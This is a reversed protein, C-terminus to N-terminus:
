GSGSIAELITARLQEVAERQPSDPAEALFGNLQVLVERHRQQKLLINVLMLRADPMPEDHDVAGMLSAEADVMRDLKYLASGLYYFARASEPDMITAEEMLAATVEYLDQARAPTFSQEMQGALELNVGALGVLAETSDPYLERVREFSDKADDFRGADHQIAGLELFAEYFTPAMRIANELHRMASNTDGSALEDLGRDFEEVAGESIEFGEMDADKPISVGSVAYRGTRVEGEDTYNSSNLMITMSAYQSAGSSLAVRERVLGYGELNIYLHYVGSRPLNHFFFRGDSDTYVTAVLFRIPRELRIEIGGRGEVANEPLGVQGRLEIDSGQAFASSTCLCLLAGTVRIARLVFRMRVVIGPLRLSPFGSNTPRVRIGPAGHRLLPFRQAAVTGDLNAFPSCSSRPSVLHEALQFRPSAILEDPLFALACRTFANPCNTM